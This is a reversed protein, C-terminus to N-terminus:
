SPDHGYIIRPDDWGLVFDTYPIYEAILPNAGKQDSVKPRTGYYLHMYMKLLRSDGAAWQKANFGDIVFYKMDRVPNAGNEASEPILKADSGFFERAKPELEPSVLILDYKCQFPLGDYTEFRRAATQTTTIAPISFASTGKNSFTAADTSNLPHDTAFLSKSDPGVFGPNFGNGFMRYFNMLVTMYLGNSLVQGAKKAEGSMDFKAAKFGVRYIGAKEQGIYSAIFGKKRALETLNTGDYDPIEGVGGAGANKKEYRDMDDVDIVQEIINTNKAYDEDFWKSVLPYMADRWTYENFM